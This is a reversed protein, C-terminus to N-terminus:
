EFFKVDNNQRNFNIELLESIVQLLEDANEARFTGTITRKALNEERFKVNIGFNEKIMIVVEELPTQNFIFQHDKWACYNQSEHIQQISVHGKPDLKALDGPKMTLQKAVNGEKYNLQVKGKHLVVKTNKQRTYVNFETGLVEVEFNENTKVIFKKHDFTHKVVFIAEGILFVERASKGFSFRPVELSSNANLTVRSGDVLTIKQIEGYNTKYNKYLWYDKGLFLAMSAIIFFSAVLLFWRINSYFSPSNEVIPISFSNGEKAIQSWSKQFAGETDPSLQLSQKEWEDLWEYYLERHKFELLWAAILKKQLPTARGAFNEFLTNKNVLEDM